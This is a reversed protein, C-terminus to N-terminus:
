SLTKMLNCVCTHSPFLHSLMRKQNGEGSLPPREACDGPRGITSLVDHIHVFTQIPILSHVPRVEKAKEKAEQIGMEVLPALEGASAEM